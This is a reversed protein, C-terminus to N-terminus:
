LGQSAWGARRHDSSEITFGRWWLATGAFRTEAEHDAATATASGGAVRGERFLEHASSTQVGSLGSGGRCIM